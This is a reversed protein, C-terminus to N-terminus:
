AEVGLGVAAMFARMDKGSLEMEAVSVFEARAKDDELLQYDDVLKQWLPRHDPPSEEQEPPSEDPEDVETEVSSEDLDSSEEDSSEEDASATDEANTSGAREKLKASLESQNEIGIHGKFGLPQTPEPDPAVDRLEQISQMGIIVEPYHARILWMASRYMGMLDPMTLWKSDKKKAWGEKEVTEWTIRLAIEEETHADVVFCEWWRSKGQGGSRYRVPGNIRGSLNLLAIALKSEIGPKGHVVYSNQMFMFPDVGMQSAMTCAIVCNEVKNRYRDPVLDSSAFLKGVRWVHELQTPDMLNIARPPNRHESLLRETAQVEILAGGNTDEVTAM